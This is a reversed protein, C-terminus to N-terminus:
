MGDEFCYKRVGDIDNPGHPVAYCINSNVKTGAYVVVGSPVTANCDIHCGDGVFSNHNVVANASIICGFAVTANAQIVAGAEVISGKGIQASPSVHAYPSVIPLLLYGAEELKKLLELRLKANGVAVFANSYEAVFKEYESFKGIATEVSDDLFAIKDFIRMFEATEKAVQGYQGAGLILLNKNM